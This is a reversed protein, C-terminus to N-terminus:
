PRGPHGKGGANVPIKKVQEDAAQYIESVAKQRVMRDAFQQIAEEVTHGRHTLASVQKDTLQITFATM